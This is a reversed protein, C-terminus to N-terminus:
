GSSPRHRHGFGVNFGLDVLAEVPHRLARAVISRRRLLRDPDDVARGQGPRAGVFCMFAGDPRARDASPRTRCHEAGGDGLGVDCGREGRGHRGGTPGPLLQAGGQGGAERGGPRGPLLQARGDVPRGRRCAAARDDRAAQRGCEEGHREHREQQRGAAARLGRPGAEGWRRRVGGQRGGLGTVGGAIWRREGGCGVRVVASRVLPGPERSRCRSRQHMPRRARHPVDSTAGAADRAPHVAPPTRRRHPSAPGRVRPAGAPRCCSRWSRPALLAAPPRGRHGPPPTGGRGVRRHGPAAGGRGVPRHLGRARGPGVPVRWPRPSRPQSLAEAIAAGLVAPVRCPPGPEGSPAKTHKTPARGPRTAGDVIVILSSRRREM